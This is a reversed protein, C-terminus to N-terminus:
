VRMEKLITQFDSDNFLRDVGANITKDIAKDSGFQGTLGIFHEANGIFPKDFVTQGTADVVKVSFAAQGKASEMMADFSKVFFDQLNGTILIKSGSSNLVSGMEAKDNLNGVSAKQVNFGQQLLKSAIRNTLIANIPTKPENMAITAVQGIHKPNKRSDTLDMIAVKPANAVLSKGYVDGDEKISSTYACGQLSVAMLFVGFAVRKM